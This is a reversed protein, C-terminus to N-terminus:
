LKVPKKGLHRLLRFHSSLAAWLSKNKQYKVNFELCTKEVIPSMAEYNVHCITPFLHHEIHFNLGGCFWNLFPNFSCNVTSEIKHIAWEKEIMGTKKSPVLFAAAEVEHGIIFISNMVLGMTFVTIGYCLLVNWISHFMVPIIFAFTLFLVKGLWFIVLELGKPRPYDLHDIKNGLFNNIDRILSWEITYLGYFFWIYYHQWRHLSHWQQFPTKRAFIGFEFDQDYGTINIYNHHLFNHGMKWYYSSFGILDLSIAMLKNVWPIDSCANHTGDHQLNFGIGDMILGLLISLGLAQWWEQALFVLSLYTIALSLLLIIAKLYFQPCDRKRRGTTQFFENIRRNLITRFETNQAFKLQKISELTLTSSVTQAVSPIM